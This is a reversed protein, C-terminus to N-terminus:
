SVQNQLRFPWRSVEERRNKKVTIWRREPSKMKRFCRDPLPAILNIGGRREPVTVPAGVSKRLPASPSNRLSLWM